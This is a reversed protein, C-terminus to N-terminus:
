TCPVHFSFNWLKMVDIILFINDNFWDKKTAILINSLSAKVELFEMLPNISLNKGKFVIASAIIMRTLSNLSESKVLEEIKGETNESIWKNIIKASELSESFKLNQAAHDESLLSSANKDFSPKIIFNEAIFLKAAATVDDPLQSLNKSISEICYPRLLELIRERTEGEAGAVLISFAHAVNFPSLVANGAPLLEFGIM